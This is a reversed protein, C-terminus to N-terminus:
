PLKSPVFTTGNWVRVIGTVFSGTPGTATNVNVAGTVFSGTPGTASAVNLPSIVAITKNSTDVNGVNNTARIRFTFSFPSTQTVAGTIAGTSTNFSLGTPLNDPSAVISFSRARDAAVSSSSYTQGWVAPSTVDTNTFSPLVGAISSTASWEGDGTDNSARTQYFYTQDYVLGTITVERGSAIDVKAGWNSGDTSQRYDYSSARTATQSTLTVSEGDLSRTLTPAESPAAPVGQISSSASWASVGVSDGARVQVFVTNTNIFGSGSGSTGSMANESSWTSNDYSWRYQYYSGTGYFTATSSTLSITTGNSGRSFSAVSPTTPLATVTFNFSLSASGHVQTSYSGSATYTGPALPVGPSLQTISGSVSRPFYPDAIINNVGDAGGFDYSQGSASAVTQGAITVTWSGGSYAYGGWSPNGDTVSASWDVRNIGGTANVTLLARNRSDNTYASPM